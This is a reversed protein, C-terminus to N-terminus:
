FLFVPQDTEARGLIMSAHISRPPATMSFCVQCGCACHRENDLQKSVGPISIKVSSPINKSYAMLAVDLEECRVLCTVLRVM